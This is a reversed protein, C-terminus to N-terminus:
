SAIELMRKIKQSVGYMKAGFQVNVSVANSAILENLIASLQSPKLYPFATVLESETAPGSQLLYMLIEHKIREM